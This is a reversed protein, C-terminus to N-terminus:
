GITGGVAWPTIGPSGPVLGEGVPAGRLAVPVAIGPVVSASEAGEISAVPVIPFLGLTGAGAIDPVAPVRNARIRHRRQL